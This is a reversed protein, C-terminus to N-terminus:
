YRRMEPDIQEAWADIGGDLVQLNSFGAARLQEFAKLSRGGRHCTLIYPKGPDLSAAHISLEMLPLLKSDPIAAIAYEQPERVDIVTPAEGANLLGALESASIRPAGDAWSAAPLDTPEHITPSQGCLACDPARQAPLERWQASLGDFLLLRGVLPEGLGLILKVVELAQMSGIIGPLMGLVGGEACSPVLEAPPPEPFLCRYCPGRPSDFVTIQGEFRFVSAHVLPKGSLVAADNVLYRTAFNDSGDVIVDYQKVLPMVNDAALRLAHADIQVHPNLQSLRAHATDLKPQGVDRTDYLVQRQINSLDITDFEVLGLRGIGAAALYLCVPSGLGGAGVCLVSSAMLTQQGALTIEPMVIHRSYRLLEDPSLETM